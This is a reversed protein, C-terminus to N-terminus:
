APESKSRVKAALTCIAAPSATGARITVWMTSPRRVLVDTRWACGPGTSIEVAKCETVKESSGPDRHAVGGRVVTETARCAKRSGDKQVEEAGRDGPVRGVR